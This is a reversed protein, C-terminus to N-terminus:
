ALFSSSDHPFIYQHKDTIEDFVILGHDRKLGKLHNSVRYMCDTGVLFRSVGYPRRDVIKFTVLCVALFDSM